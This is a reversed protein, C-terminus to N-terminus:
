ILKGGPDIGNALTTRATAHAEHAEVLPMEPYAGLTMRRPVGNFRYM